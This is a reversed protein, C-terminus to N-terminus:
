ALRPPRATMAPSGAPVQHHAGLPARNSNQQDPGSGSRLQRASAGVMEQISSSGGNRLHDLLGRNIRRPWMPGGYVFGTHAQVLTAGALIRRWAEDATEIGGVSILVLRDGARAYLRELVHLARAKLPPGSVGGHKKLAVPDSSLRERHITTNTAVIGDLELELALDAIADIHDDSLDPGIKLLIPSATQIDRLESRVDAILTRLQGIEQMARLGPTNPSSVNLVVYDALQALCSTSKRYDDGAEDPSAVKSKGLNVGVITNRTRKRLRGAVIEAGPNPFGMSNLLARDKPLRWVRPSPNGSQPVATVTGVEVFGFGLAGLSEFWTADKDMGGAVGLPSPFTLGLAKVQLQPDRPALARRM